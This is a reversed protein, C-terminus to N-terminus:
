ITQKREWDSPSIILWKKETCDSLNRVFLLLLLVGNM